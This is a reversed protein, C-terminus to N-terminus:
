AMCTIECYLFTDINAFLPMDCKLSVSNYTNQLYNYLKEINALTDRTAFVVHKTFNHQYCAVGCVKVKKAM